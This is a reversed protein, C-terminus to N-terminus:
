LDPMSGNVPPDSARGIILDSAHGAVAMVPGNLNGSVMTPLVSADVVRLNAVGRVRLAPDVVDGDHPGMACTGMAHYGCYGHALAADIIDADDRVAPGPLTEVTIRKAIPDTAFLERMRHFLAVGVRRDHDTALYNPVIEPAAEPDASTIRVSGESDPRLVCGLCNVGPERELPLQEGPSQPGASFPAMLLQADPRDLDPRTKIFALVDYVPAAIPGRRTLLYKLGAAAQRAPTNLRRNYGLDEALRFQLKFVRHERMRAGVNPRDLLVEVGAARLTDAPGIGSVQLLRPTAISGCALIVEAAAPVDVVRGYRRVRVGTATGNQILVRLALTGTAVTLNPRRRVPRLFAAAANVRRGDRITAMTYGIREGDTANLDREHSWGLSVGAAIMEECLGDSETESVASVALGGAEMREFIPLMTDWGWGPNGLRELADYDARQGRNYVMGNISSSGGLMRGRPWVEPRATPHFPRVPFQWATRTGDMLRAFGKPVKVLPNSDRGGAEILLVRNGPDESLRNALVCGASGAGVIVYDFERM